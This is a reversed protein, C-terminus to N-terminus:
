PNCTAVVSIKNISLKGTSSAADPIETVTLRFALNLPPNLAATPVLNMRLTGSYPSLSYYIPILMSPEGLSIGLSYPLTKEQMIKKLSLNDEMSINIDLRAYKGSTCISFDSSVANNELKFGPKQPDFLLTPGNIEWPSCTGRDGKCTTWKGQGGMGWCLSAGGDVPTPCEQRSGGDAASLDVDSGADQPATSGQDEPQNGARRDVYNFCAIQGLTALLAVTRAPAPALPTM